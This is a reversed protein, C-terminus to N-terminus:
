DSRGSTVIVAAGPFGDTETVRRAQLLHRQQHAVMIRFADLVRYSALPAVPSGIVADGAGLADLQRMHRVVEDVHAVFRDVIDAGLDSASPEAGKSTRFRRTATPQVAGLIMKAWFDPLWPIRRALPTRYTGSEIERLAPWYSADIRILHDLCQAVSWREAGPKWDLQAPTLAGFRDRADRANAEAQGILRTSEPSM